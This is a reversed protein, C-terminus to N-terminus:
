ATTPGSRADDPGVPWVGYSLSLLQTLMRATAGWITEDDLEFFHIPWENPHTGWREERHTDPRALEILPVFLIREVEDTGPRLEPHRALRGFIPISHLENKMVYVPDAALLYFIMTDLASQHKAAVLMPGALRAGRVEFQAGIIWRLLWLTGSAWAMGLRRIAHRDRLLMPVGSLVLLITWAFFCFNFLLSRLTKM